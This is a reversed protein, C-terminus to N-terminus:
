WPPGGEDCELADAPDLGPLEHIIPEHEDESAYIGLVWHTHNGSNRHDALTGYTDTLLAHGGDDLAARLGLCVGDTRGVTWFHETATDLVLTAESWEEETEAELLTHGDIDYVTM